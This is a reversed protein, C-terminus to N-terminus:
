SGCSSGTLEGPQSDVGAPLLGIGRGNPRSVEASKRAARWADAHQRNISIAEDAQRLAENWDDQGYHMEGLRVLLDPNKGSLDAALSMHEVAEEQQGQRWLVEAMGWQAREDAASRSLVEGFLSEAESYNNEQLLGAGRLSFQRAESLNRTHRNSRFTRCGTAGLTQLCFILVFLLHLVGNPIGSYNLKAARSSAFVVDKISKLKDFCNARMGM